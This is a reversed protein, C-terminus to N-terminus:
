PRLGKTKPKPLVRRPAKVTATIRKEGHELLDGHAMRYDRQSIGQRTRGGYLIGYSMADSPLYSDAAETYGRSTEGAHVALQIRAVLGESPYQSRYDSFEESGVMFHIAVPDETDLARVTGENLWAGMRRQRLHKVQAKAMRAEQVPTDDIVLPMYERAM